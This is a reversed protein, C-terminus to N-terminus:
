KKSSNVKGIDSDFLIGEYEGLIPSCKFGYWEGCLSWEKDRFLSGLESSVLDGGEVGGNKSFESSLLIGEDDDLLVGEEVGMNIGLESVILLPGSEGLLLILEVGHEEGFLIEDKNNFLLIKNM